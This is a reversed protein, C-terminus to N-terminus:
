ALRTQPQDRGYSCDGYHGAVWQCHYSGRSRPCLIRLDQTVSMDRDIRLAYRRIADALRKQRELKKQWTM